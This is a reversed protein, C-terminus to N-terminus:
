IGSERRFRVVINFTGNNWNLASYYARGYGGRADAYTGATLFALDARQIPIIRTEGPALDRRETLESGGSTSGLAFGYITNASTNKVVADILTADLPLVGATDGGLEGNASVGVLQIVAGESEDNIATVGPTRTYHNKNGGIDEAFRGAGRRLKAIPGCENVTFDRVYARDDSASNLGDFFTGGDAKLLFLSVGADAGNNRIVVEQWAWTGVVSTNRDGVLAEFSGGSTLDLRIKAVNTQGAPVYYRFRVRAIRGARIAANVTNFILHTTAATGDAYWKMCDDLSTVGDSVGDQNGAHVARATSWNDTGASFNSTYYPVMSGRGLVDSAPMRGTQAYALIEAATQVRNILPIAILGGKWIESAARIGVVDYTAVIADTWAPISSGTTNPTMSQLIGDIYILPAGARDWTETLLHLGVTLATSIGGKFVFRSDATTAGFIQVTLNDSASIYSCFSQAAYATPLSSLGRIGRVATKAVGDNYFWTHRTFPSTAMDGAAGLSAVMRAGATGPDFHDYPTTARTAFWGMMLSFDFAETDGASPDMLGVYGPKLYTQRVHAPDSPRLSM